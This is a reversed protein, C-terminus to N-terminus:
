KEVKMNKIYNLIHLLNVKNEHFEKKKYLKNRLQEQINSDNIM